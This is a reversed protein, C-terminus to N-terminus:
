FYLFCTDRSQHHILGCGGVSGSTLITLIGAVSQRSLSQEEQPSARIFARGFSVQLNEKGEDMLELTQDNRKVVTGSYWHM